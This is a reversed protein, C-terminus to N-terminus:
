YSSVGGLEVYFPRLLGATQWIQLNSLFGMFAYSTNVNKTFHAIIYIILKLPKLVNLNFNLLCQTTEVGHSWNYRSDIISLLYVQDCSPFRAALHLEIM